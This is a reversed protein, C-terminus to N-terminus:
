MATQVRGCRCTGPRQGTRNADPKRVDHDFILVLADLPQQGDLGFRDDQKVLDDPPVQYYGADGLAGTM